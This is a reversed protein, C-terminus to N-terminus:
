RVLIDLYSKKIAAASFQTQMHQYGASKFGDILAVDQILTVLRELCAEPSQEVYGSVGNMVVETAGLAFRTTIVAMGAAAAEGIAQPYSDMKTPLILIDHEEFVKRHADTGYRIGPLFNIGEVNASPDNTLMSLECKGKLHSVWNNVLLDGGKRKLDGGVFLVRPRDPTARPAMQINDIYFPAPVKFLKSEEVGYYEILNKRVAETMCLIRPCSNLVKKHLYFLWNKKVEKGQVSPYLCRTWDMLIATNALKWAGFSLFAPSLGHFLVRHGGGRYYRLKKRLAAISLLRDRISRKYNVGKDLENVHQAAFRFFDMENRFLQHLNAEYTRNGLDVPFSVLLLKKNGSEAPQM